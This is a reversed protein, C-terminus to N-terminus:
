GLFKKVDRLADHLREMQLIHGCNDYVHLQSNRIGAHFDEAHKAPTVRDNAGWLLLTPIQIRHLRSRLGHDPFPWLFKGAVGQMWTIQAIFAPMAEPIPPPTMMEIAGPATGPNHFLFAGLEQPPTVYLTAIGSPADDRWLGCPGMPVLKSFLDPYFAALDCAVMGGMSQGVAIAGKLGLKRLVEEYILLLDTYTDVQYIAHPDGPTTGPMEPAYVTYNEALADLFRDWYLGAAPHLYVLAPGTGAVRVRVKVRGGWVEVLEDRQPGKIAVNANM